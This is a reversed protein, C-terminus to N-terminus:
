KGTNQKKKPIDKVNKIHEKIYRGEIWKYSQEIWKLMQNSTDCLKKLKGFFQMLPINKGINIESEKEKEKSAVILPKLTPILLPKSCSLPKYDYKTNFYTLENATNTNLEQHFKNNSTLYEKNCNVCGKKFIEKSETLYLDMNLDKENQSDKEIETNEDKIKDMYFKSRSSNPAKEFKIKFNNLDFIKKTTERNMEDYEDVEENAMNDLEDNINDKINRFQDNIFGLEIKPPIAKIREGITENRNFDNALLYFFNFHLNKCSKLQLNNCTDDQIVSSYNETSFKAFDFNRNKHAFTKPEVKMKAPHKITDPENNFANTLNEFVTRINFVSGAHIFERRKNKISKIYKNIEDIAPNINFDANSVCEEMLKSFNGFFNEQLLILYKLNLNIHFLVEEDNNKFYDIWSLLEPKKYYIQEFQTFNFTTKGNSIKFFLINIEKESLLNDTAGPHVKKIAGIILSLYSQFDKVSVSGSNSKDILKFTVLCRENEDGHHYIDMYKLYENLKISKKDSSFIDFIMYAFNIAIDTGLM